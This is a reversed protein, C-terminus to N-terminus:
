DMEHCQPKDNKRYNDASRIPSSPCRSLCPTNRAKLEEEPSPTLGYSFQCEGTEYDPTMTLKLGMDDMFFRQTPIKCANVCISACGSEELFRCRKVLLGQKYGIGGGDIECDNVECEGM